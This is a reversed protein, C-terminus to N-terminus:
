TDLEASAQESRKPGVIKITLPRNDLSALKIRFLLLAGQTPGESAMAGAPPIRQRPPMLGGRYDFVNVSPLVVPRYTNGQTDYITINKTATQPRDTPNYVQIFVGFWEEGPPPEWQSRTLGVFYAEDERMFPNLARSIQVEYSLPGVNLYPAQAGGGGAYTGTTVKTVEGCASLGLTASLALAVLATKRPGGM